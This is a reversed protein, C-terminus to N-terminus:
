DHLFSSGAATSLATGYPLHQCGRATAVWLTAAWPSYRGRSCWGTATEVAHQLPVVVWVVLGAALLLLLLMLCAALGQLLQQGWWPGPLV